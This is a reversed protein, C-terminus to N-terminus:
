HGPSPLPRRCSRKEGEQRAEAFLGLADDREIGDSRLDVIILKGPRVLDRPTTTDNIFSEAL